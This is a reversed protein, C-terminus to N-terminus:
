LLERVIKDFMSYKVAYMINNMAEHLVTKGLSTKSFDRRDEFAMM